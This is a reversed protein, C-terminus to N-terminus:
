QVKMTAQGNEHVADMFHEPILPKPGPMEALKESTYYHVNQKAGDSVGDRYYEEERKAHQFGRLYANQAAIRKRHNYLMDVAIGAAFFLINYITNM